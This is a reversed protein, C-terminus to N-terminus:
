EADPDDTDAPEHPPEKHLEALFRDLRTRLADREARARDRDARLDDVERTRLAVLEAEREAERKALWALFRKAAPYVGLSALAAAVAAVIEAASM